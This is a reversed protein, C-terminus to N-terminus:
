RFHFPLIFTTDARSLTVPPAPFQARKVADIAATDLGRNGSTSQITAETVGGDAGITFRVQASGHAGQPKPRVKAVASLVSRAYDRAVGPPAAQAAPTAVSIAVTGRAVEGSVETIPPTAAMQPARPTESQEERKFPEILSEVKPTAVPLQVTTNPATLVAFEQPKESATATAAPSVEEMEVAVGAVGVATAAADADAVAADRAELARGDTISVAIADLVLGGGADDSRFMWGAAVALGLHLGLASMLALRFAWPGRRAHMADTLSAVAALSPNTLRVETASNPKQNPDDM